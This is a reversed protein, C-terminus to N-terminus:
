KATWGLDILQACGTIGWAAKSCLFVVYAAVDEPELIRKIAAPELMVKQVVDEPSIGRTRSQDMIQNEVLPTRV